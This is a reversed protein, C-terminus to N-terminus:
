ALARDIRPEERVVGEVRARYGAAISPAQREEIQHQGHHDRQEIKGAPPVRAHLRTVPRTQKSKQLARASVDSLGVRLTQRPSPTQRRGSSTVVGVEGMDRYATRSSPRMRSRQVSTLTATASAIRTGSPNKAIPSVIAATPM